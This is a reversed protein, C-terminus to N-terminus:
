KRKWTTGDASDMIEVGIADLQDRIEDARAYDKNKRAESREALLEDIRSDSLSLEAEAM